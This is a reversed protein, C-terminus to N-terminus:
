GNAAEQELAAYFDDPGTESGPRDPGIMWRYEDIALFAQHAADPAIGGTVIGQFDMLVNAVQQWGTMTRRAGFAAGVTKAYPKSWATSHPYVLGVEIKGISQGWVHPDAGTPTWAILAEAAKM